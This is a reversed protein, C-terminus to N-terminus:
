FNENMDLEYRGPCLTQEVLFGKQKWGLLITYYHITFIDHRQLGPRILKILSIYKLLHVDATNASVPKLILYWCQSPIFM